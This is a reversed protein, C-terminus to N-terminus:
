MAGMSPRKPAPAPQDKFLDALIARRQNAAIDFFWSDGVKGKLTAGLKRKFRAFQAPDLDQQAQALLDTTDTKIKRKDSESVDAWNSEVFDGLKKIQDAYHEEAQDSTPRRRYKSDFDDDTIDALDPNLGQVRHFAAKQEEPDWPIGGLEKDLSSLANARRVTKQSLAENADREQQKITLENQRNTLARTADEAVHRYKTDEDRRRNEDALRLQEAALRDKETGARIKETEIPVNAKALEVASADAKAKRDAEERAKNREYEMWNAGRRADPKSFSSMKFKKGNFEGTATGFRNAGFSAPDGAIEERLKQMEQPGYRHSLAWEQTANLGAHDMLNSPTLDVTDDDPVTDGPEIARAVGLRKAAAHNELDGQYDEKRAAKRMGNMWPRTVNYADTPEEANPNESDYLSVRDYLNRPM